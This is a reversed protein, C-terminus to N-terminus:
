AGAAKGKLFLGTLQLLTTRLKNFAVGHVDISISPVIGDNRM